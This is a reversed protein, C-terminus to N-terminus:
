NNIQYLVSMSIAFKMKIVTQIIGEVLLWAEAEEPGLDVDLDPDPDGERALLCARDSVEPRLKHISMDVDVVSVGEMDQDLHLQGEKVCVRVEALDL